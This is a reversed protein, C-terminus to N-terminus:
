DINFKKSYMEAFHNLTFGWQDKGSGFAVNGRDPECILEGM